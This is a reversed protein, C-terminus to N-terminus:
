MDVVICIHKRLEEETFNDGCMICAWVGGGFYVDKEDPDEHDYREERGAVTPPRLHLGPPEQKPDPTLALLNRLEGGMEM